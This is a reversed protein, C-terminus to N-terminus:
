RAAKPRWLKAEWDAVRTKNRLTAVRHGEAELRARQTEIGGPYKGNLEGYAKLVRWWPTVRKLGATEQEVSAHAAIWAFIGTTIPCAHDTGHKVSLMRRLEHITTVKGKPVDKILADVEAPAPVVMTGSGWRKQQSPQIELVKPLAKSDALKETWTKRKRPM